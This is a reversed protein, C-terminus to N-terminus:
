LLAHTPHRAGVVLGEQSAVQARPLCQTTAHRPYAPARNRDVPMVKDRVGDTAHSHDVPLSDLPTGPPQLRLPRCTTALPAAAQGARRTWALQRQGPVSAQTRRATTPTAVGTGRHTRTAAHTRARAVSWVDGGVAAHTSRTSTGHHSPITTDTTLTCAIFSKRRSCPTNSFPCCMGSPVSRRSCENMAARDDTMREAYTVCSCDGHQCNGGRRGRGWVSVAKCSQGHSM